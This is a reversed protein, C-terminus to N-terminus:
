VQLKTKKGEKQRAGQVRCKCGAGVSVSFLRVAVAYLMFVLRSVPPVSSVCCVVFLSNNLEKQEESEKERRWRQAVTDVAGDSEEACGCCPLFCASCENSYRTAPPRAPAIARVQTAGISRHSRGGFHSLTATPQGCMRRQLKSDFDNKLDVRAALVSM